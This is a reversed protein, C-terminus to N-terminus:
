LNQREVFPFAVDVGVGLQVACCTGISDGPHNPPRGIAVSQCRPFFKGCFIGGLSTRSREWRRRLRRFETRRLGRFLCTPRGDLGCSQKLQLELFRDFGRGCSRQIARCDMLQSRDRGLRRCAVHPVIDVGVRFRGRIHGRAGRWLWGSLAARGRVSPTLSKSVTQTRM